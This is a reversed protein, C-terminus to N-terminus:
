ILSRRNVLCICIGTQGGVASRRLILLCHSSGGVEDYVWVRVRARTIATYLHRLEELLLKHTAADFPIMRKMTEEDLHGGGGGGGGSRPESLDTSAIGVGGGGDVDAMDGDDNLHYHYLCRWEKTYLGDDICTM